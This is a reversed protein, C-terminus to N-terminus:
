FAVKSWCVRRDLALYILGEHNESPLAWNWSYCRCPSKQPIADKVENHFAQCVVDNDRRKHGSKRYVIHRSSGPCGFTDTPRIYGPLHGRRGTELPLWLSSTHSLTKSSTGLCRLGYMFNFM